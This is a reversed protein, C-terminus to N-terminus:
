KEGRVGVFVDIGESAGVHCIYRVSQGDSSFVSDIHIADMKALEEAVAAVIAKRVRQQHESLKM